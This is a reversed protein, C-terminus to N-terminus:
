SNVISHIWKYIGVLLGCWIGYGIINTSYTGFCLGVINFIKALVGVVIEVISLSIVAKASIDYRRTQPSSILIIPQGNQPADQIITPQRQGQIVMPQTQGHIMMPQVNSVAVPQPPMSHQLHQQQQNQQQQQQQPKMEDGLEEDLSTYPQQSM